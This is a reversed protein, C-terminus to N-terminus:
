RAKGRGCFYATLRFSGKVSNLIYEAWLFHFLSYFRIKAAKFVATMPDLVVLVVYMMANGLQLVM